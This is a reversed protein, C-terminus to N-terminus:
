SFGTSNINNSSTVHHLLLSIEGLAVKHMVFSVHVLVPDFVPRRVSHGDSLWLMAVLYTLRLVTIIKCDIFKNAAEEFKVTGDFEISFVDHFSLCVDICIAFVSQSKFV